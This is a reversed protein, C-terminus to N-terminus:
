AEYRLGRSVLLLSLKLIAQAVSFIGGGGSVVAVVVVDRLPPEM